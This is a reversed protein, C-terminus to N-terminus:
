STYDSLIDTLEDVGDIEIGTILKKADEAPLTRTYIEFIENPIDSGDYFVAIRGKYDKLIYKQITKESVTTNINEITKNSSLAGNLVVASAAVSLVAFVVAKNM